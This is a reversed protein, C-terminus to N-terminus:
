GGGGAHTRNACGIDEECGGLGRWVRLLFHSYDSRIDSLNRVVGPQLRIRYGAFSSVRAKYAGPIQKGRHISTTTSKLAGLSDSGQSSWACFRFAMVCTVM